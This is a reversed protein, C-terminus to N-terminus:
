AVDEVDQAAHAFAVLRLGVALAAEASLWAGAADDDSSPDEVHLFVAAGPHTSELVQVREAPDDEGYVELDEADPLDYTDDEVTELTAEVPSALVMTKVVDAIAAAGTPDFAVLGEPTLALIPTPIAATM